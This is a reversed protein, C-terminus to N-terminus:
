SRCEGQLWFAQAWLKGQGKTEKQGHSLTRYIIFAPLGPRLAAQALSGPGLLGQDWTGESWVPLCKQSHRYKGPGPSTSIYLVQDEDKGVKGNVLSASTCRM